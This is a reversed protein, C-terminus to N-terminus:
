HLRNLDCLLLGCLQMRSLCHRRGSLRTFAVPLSVHLTYLVCLTYEEMDLIGVQYARSRLLFPSTFSISFVHLTSRWTLSASRILLSYASAYTLCSPLCKPYLSCM